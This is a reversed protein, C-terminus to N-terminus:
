GWTVWQLAIPSLMAAVGGQEVVGGTSLVGPSCPNEPTYRSAVAVSPSRLAVSHLSVTNLPLEGAALPGSLIPEQCIPESPEPKKNRNPEQGKRSKVAM